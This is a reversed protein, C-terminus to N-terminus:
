FNICSTWEQGCEKVSSLNVAIEFDGMAVPGNFTLSYFNSDRVPEVTLHMLSIQSFIFFLAFFCINEALM